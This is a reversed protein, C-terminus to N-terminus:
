PTGNPSHVSKIMVQFFINNETRSRTMFYKKLWYNYLLYSSPLIFSVSATEPIDACQCLFFVLKRNNILKQKLFELYEQQTDQTSKIFIFFVSEGKRKKKKKAIALNKIKM